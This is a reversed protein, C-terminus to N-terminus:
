RYRVQDNSYRGVKKTPMVRLLAIRQNHYGYILPIDEYVLM